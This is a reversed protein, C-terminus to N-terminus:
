PTTLEVLACSWQEGSPAVFGYRLLRQSNACVWFTSNADYPGGIFRYAEAMLLQEGVALQQPPLELPAAERVQVLPTLTDKANPDRLDPVVVTGRGDPQSALGCLVPGLFNRTLPLWHHSGPLPMTEQEPLVGPRARTVRVSTPAIECVVSARVRDDGDSLALDLHTLAGAESWADIRLLLGAPGKRADRVVRIHEQHDQPGRYATYREVIGTEKWATDHPEARQYRYTGTERLTWDPRERYRSTFGPCLPEEELLHSSQQSSV